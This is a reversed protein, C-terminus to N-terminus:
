ALEGGPAVLMVERQERSAPRVDLAEGPIEFGPASRPRGHRPSQGRDGPEVPVRDLFVQKVVRRRRMHPPRM